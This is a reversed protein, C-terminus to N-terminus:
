IINLWIHTKYRRAPCGFPKLPRYRYGGVRNNLDIGGAISVFQDKLTASQALAVALQAKLTANETQLAAIQEAESM